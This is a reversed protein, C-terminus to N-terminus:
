LNGGRLLNEIEVIRGAKYNDDHVKQVKAIVSFVFPYRRSINNLDEFFEKDSEIPMLRLVAKTANKADKRSLLHYKMALVAQILFERKTDSALYTYNNM